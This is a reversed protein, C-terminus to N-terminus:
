HWEKGGGEPPFGAPSHYGTKRGEPLAALIWRPIQGPAERHVRAILKNYEPQKVAFSRAL